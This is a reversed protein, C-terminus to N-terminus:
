CCGAYLRVGVGPKVSQLIWTPQVVCLLMKCHEVLNEQFLLHKIWLFDLAPM